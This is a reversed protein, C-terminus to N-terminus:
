VRFFDERNESTTMNNISSDTQTSKDALIPIYHEPEDHNVKCYAKYKMMYDIRLIEKLLMQCRFLAFSNRRPLFASYNMDIFDVNVKSCVFKLEYNLKRENLFRNYPVESVLVNTNIKNKFFQRLTFLLEDPSNDHIGGLIILFDNADLQNVETISSSLVDHLRAGSKWYCFVDYDEGILKQLTRQMKYGQDDALILVRRKREFLPENLIPSNLPEEIYSTVKVTDQSQPAVENMEEPDKENNNQSCEKTIPSLLLNTDTSKILNSSDTESSIKPSKVAIDIFNSLCPVSPSSKNTAGKKKRQSKPSKTPTKKDFLQVKKYLEIVRYSEGLDTKLRINEINLNEIEKHASELECQLKKITESLITHSENLSTNPLSQMTADFLHSSEQENITSNSINNDLSRARQLRFTINEGEM